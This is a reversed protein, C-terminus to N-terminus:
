EVQQTIQYEREISTPRKLIYNAAEPKESECRYMLTSYPIHLQFSAEKVSTYILGDIVCQYDKKTIALDEFKKPTHVPYISRFDWNRSKLRHWITGNSVNLVQAAIKCSPYFNGYAFIPLANDAEVGNNQRDQVRQKAKDAIV